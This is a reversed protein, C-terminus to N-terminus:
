CPISSISARFRYVKQNQKQPMLIKTFITRNQPPVLWYTLFFMPEFSVLCAGKHSSRTKQTHHICKYIIRALCAGIGKPLNPSPGNPGEKRANFVIVVVLWYTSLQWLLRKRPLLRWKRMSFPPQHLRWSLSNFQSLARLWTHKQNCKFATYRSSFHMHYVCTAKCHLRTKGISQFGGSKWSM